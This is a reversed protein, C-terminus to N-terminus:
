PNVQVALTYKKLPPTNKEWPRECVFELTTEGTRAARLDFVSWETGGPLPKGDSSYKETRQDKLRMPSEQTPLSALRWSYGTGAQTRLRVVFIQGVSLWASDQSQSKDAFVTLVRPPSGELSAQDQQSCGVAACLLAAVAIATSTVRMM